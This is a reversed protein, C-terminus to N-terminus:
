PLQVRETPVAAAESDLDHKGSRDSRDQMAGYEVDYVVSLLGMAVPIGSGRHFAQAARTLVAVMLPRVRPLRSLRRAIQVVLHRGRRERRVTELWGLKPYMRDLLVDFDAYARPIRLWARLTRYAYHWGVAESTFIFRVGRLAMRLALEVDEARTFREDFLGATELVSRPVFANGTHFQRWTPKYECATMRDYEAQVQMAEWRNWPTPEWDPPASLPGISVVEDLGGHDVADRVAALHREILDPAACVDDDVFAVYRAQGHRIARNRAAAPGRSVPHRLVTLSLQQRLNSPLAGSVPIRSGDDVVIVNINPMTQRTLAELCAVLAEPRDRTPIVVDVLSTM